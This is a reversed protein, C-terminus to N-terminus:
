PRPAVSPPPKPLEGHFVIEGLRLNGVPWAGGGTTVFRFRSAEIPKEFWHTHTAADSLLFPGDVWQGEGENWYQIRTDRVWSEPHAPDEVFTVGTVKMRVPTTDVILSLHGRWGSDIMGVTSWPLWPKAPADPKGDTLGAVAAELDEARDGFSLTLRAHADRLLNPTLPAPSPAANGWSAVRSTPTPDVGLLDPRVDRVAPELHTSWLEAYHLDRRQVDGMWTAILLDGGPLWSGFPLAGCDRTWLHEGSTSLVYLTGMDSGVVVRQGDPSIRAHRLADDGTFSWALGGDSSYSKLENGTTVMLSRGDSSLAVDDAATPFVSELRGSRILFLRDGESEARVAITQGDPGVTVGKVTGRDAMRLTWKTKGDRADYATAQMGDVVLLTGRDLTALIVRKRATKWWDLSWRRSGERGWVILGLDGSSAIWEGDPAVAFHDTRDELLSTFAFNTQRKPLGYLAFRRKSHGEPDLLHLHYGESTTRDFAEVAFGGDIRHPDYSYHNGIRRRWRVNGTATDLAYLNEDWNMANFLAVTGDTSFVVEKLHPGFTRDVPTKVGAEHGVTTQRPGAPLRPPVGVLDAPGAPAIVSLGLSASKGDILEVGRLVVPGPPLGLPVVWTGSTTGHVDTAVSREQVVTGDVTSLQVRLPVSAEVAHGRDDLVSATWGCEQGAGVERPASLSVADIPRPLRAYLRVPLSRLDVDVVGGVPYVRHQAFVDYVATEDPRDKLRVSALLPARQSMITSTRWALAPDFGLTADNVVWLFRGKGSTRESLVIAPDDVTAVPEVKAGITRGLSEAHKAFYGPIRQYASDDQWVTRDREIKDFTTGAPTFSTVEEPRSTGDYFVGVGAARATELAHLLPPEFEVTQGVVLIARFRKLTDPTLDEAFVFTAPRHAALCAGYAEYLRGFYVGGLKGQRDIRVMRSSVVIAIPDDGHLAAFWPGYDHFIRGTSRLVSTVGSGPARPDSPIPGWWPAEGSSGVGDAGRMTMLFLTPLIMGGTGDDNWVEPHGWARKGPRKYFDVENATVLPPQIQEAEYQLDVEDANQFTVPPLIGLARYPGTMVSLKGPAIKQLTARFQQEARVPQGLVRDSVTDLVPSWAGTAVAKALAATYAAKEDPGDAAQAGLNTVWWNSAWSWGRFAPFTALGTTVLSIADALQAPTRGEYGTGPPLGADRGLLIAREEIGNAGYSAITQHRPGEITGKEPPIGAPDAALRRVLDTATLAEHALTSDLRDVFMNVGFKKARSLHAAVNEPTDFLTGPPISSGNDGHGVVSFVPAEQLGPGIELAQSAVTLGPAEATLEYRGPLLAGSLEPRICLDLPGPAPWAVDSRAVEVGARNLRIAIRDQAISARGVRAVIRFPIPEGRGFALRNSDTSIAITGKSHPALIDVITDVGYDGSSGDLGASIRVQYLGAADNPPTLQGNQFPLEQFDPTGFPRLWARWRPPLAHRESLFQVTAPVPVGATWPAGALSVDVEDADAHVVRKLTGTKRDFVEFLDRRDHGKVFVEGQSVRLDYVPGKPRGTQLRLQGSPHGDRDFLQVRDDNDDLVLLAGDDDVDFGGHVSAVNDGGVHLQLSWLARGDFTVVRLMSRSLVYLRQGREWVRLQTQQGRVRESPQGLAYTTVLRARADIRVVIGRDQDIGYFDGSPGAEVDGPAQWGIQDGVLFDTLSGVEEFARNWLKVRHLMHGNATAVVGNANAAFMQLAEGVELGRKDTGDPKMRVLHHSAGLYVYGDRGLALRSGAIDFAPDEASVVRRLTDAASEGAISAIFLILGVSLALRGLKSLVIASRVRGIV